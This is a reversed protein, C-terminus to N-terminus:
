KWFIPNFAIALASVIDLILAPIRRKERFYDSHDRDLCYRANLKSQLSPQSLDIYDTISAM